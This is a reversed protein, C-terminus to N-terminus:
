LSLSGHKHPSFPNMYDQTLHQGHASLFTCAFRVLLSSLTLTAEPTKPQPDICTERVWM